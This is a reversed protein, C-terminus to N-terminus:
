QIKYEFEALATGYEYASTDAYGDYPLDAVVHFSCAPSWADLLETKYLLFDVSYLGPVLWPGRITLTGEGGQACDWTAGVLRSDCQCVLIGQDNRIEARVFCSGSSAGNGRIKFHIEKPDAPILAEEDVWVSDFRVEGSGGRRSAEALAQESGSQFSQRYRALAEEVEGAYSLHGRDLYIASSCLASVTQLQHSVYLVCRGQTSVERMKQICKAQFALDGVALVEDVALIDADLHAAVAFALRVYMGSSYRKVQTDLFREVDAFAVIEDFRSRIASRRMGLLSGNLYVNERGTLEPHFGTGIELLSGIRGKIEIRGTTPSSIRTLIKLLTSKGSGNRGLIGLAEGWPVDFNVDELARVTDHRQRKTPHRLKRMVAEAATTAHADRHFIKYSKGLGSVSIALDERM